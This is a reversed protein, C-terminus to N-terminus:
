GSIQNRTDFLCKGLSPLTSIWPGENCTQPTPILKLASLVPASTTLFTTLLPAVEEGCWLLFPCSCAKRACENAGM